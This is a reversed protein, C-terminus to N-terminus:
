QKREQHPDEAGECTAELNSRVREVGAAHPKRIAKRRTTTSRGCPVDRFLSSEEGRAAVSPSHGVKRRCWCHRCFRKVARPSM